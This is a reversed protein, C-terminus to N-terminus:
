VILRPPSLLDFLSNDDRQQWLAKAKGLWKQIETLTIRPDDKMKATLEGKTTDLVKIYNGAKAEDGLKISAAIIIFCVEFEFSKEPFDSKFFVYELDELAKKLIEDDFKKYFKKIFYYYKLYNRARKYYAFPIKIEIEQTNKYIALKYSAIVGEETRPHTFSNEDVFNDFILDEIKSANEKWHKIIGRDTQHHMKKNNILDIYTFDAKKGGVFFCKPCVTHLLENYDVAVYKPSDEYIPIELINSKVMLSKARLAYYKLEDFECVPCTVDYVLIPDGPTKPEQEEGIEEAM